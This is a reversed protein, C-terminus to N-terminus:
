TRSNKSFFSKTKELLKCLKDEKDDHSNRERLDGAIKKLDEKNKIIKFNENEAM